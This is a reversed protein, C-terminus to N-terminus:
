ELNKLEQRYQYENNIAKSIEGLILGALVTYQTPVLIGVNQLGWDLGVALIMMSVRWALSKLRSKYDVPM